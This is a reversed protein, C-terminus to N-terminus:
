ALYKAELDEPAQVAKSEMRQRSLYNLGLDNILSRIKAWADSNVTCAPNKITGHETALTIGYDEIEKQSKMALEYQWCLAQLATRDIADIIGLRELGPVVEDWKEQAITGPLFPTDPVGFDKPARRNIRCKRQTGQAEKVAEPKRKRGGM